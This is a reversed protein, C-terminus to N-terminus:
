ADTVANGHSDEHGGIQADAAINDILRAKSFRIAGFLRCETSVHQAPQLTVPDAIELYDLDALPESDIVARMANLVSDRDTLGERITAAGQNLARILAPAAARESETLYKNRSSMALGDAERITPQGIVQVPCSLDHAMQKIIALQQYDKEGFYASCPGVLNFLKAVVTCVGAFHTPRSAGEMVGALEPVAVTTFVAAQGAPYMEDAEPAFLVDSGSAEAKAADGDPDRPYTGLDENAAFQLPNVFLSTVVFDNDASAARILSQHGQHLYGMTPVFGIRNGAARREDLVSRLEAISTIIRVM